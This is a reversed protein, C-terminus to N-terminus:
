IKNILHPNSSRSSRKAIRKDLRRMIPTITIGHLVISILVVLSITSWLLTPAEFEARGLAYAIYYITGVGRIGFFSIVAKEESAEPRGLLSIWSILPRIFFLTLLAFAVVQWTVGSLLGGASLAGGFTVLLIMM